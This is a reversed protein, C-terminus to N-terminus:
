AQAAEGPTARRLALAQLPSRLQWDSVGIAWGAAFILATLLTMVHGAFSAGFGLPAVLLYWVLAAVLLSKLMGRPQAGWGRDLALGGAFGLLGGRLGFILIFRLTVDTRQEPAWILPAIYGLLCGVIVGSKAGLVSAQQPQVETGRIWFWTVIAVFPVATLLAPRATGEGSVHLLAEVAFGVLFGVVIRGPIRQGIPYHPHRVPLPPLGRKVRWRGAWKKIWPIYVDFIFMWFFATGILLAWDEGHWGPISLM